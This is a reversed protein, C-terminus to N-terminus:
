NSWNKYSDSERVKAAAQPGGAEAQEGEVATGVEATPILDSAAAFLAATGEPNADYQAAWKDRNDAAFKAKNADLFAERATEHAAAKITTLEEGSNKVTTELDSLRAEPIVVHGPPIETANKAAPATAKDLIADMIQDETADDALSHAERLAAIQEDSFAVASGGETKHPGAAPATPPKPTEGNWAACAAPQVYNELLEIDHLALAWTDEDDFYDDETATPPSGIAKRAGVEDALGATVAAEGGFWTGLRGNARMLERWHETTGGAKGAYVSAYNDSQGNIWDGVAHIEDANGYVGTMADHIMLQSGPCMVIRSGALAIISAASAAIGDIVVTVEADYNRLLNGIAIGDSALGGPSHIRVVLQDVEMGRLADAVGEASFGSWWGGVLGYLWIEGTTGDLGAVPRGRSYFSAQAAQTGSGSLKAAKAKAEARTKFPLVKDAKVNTRSV